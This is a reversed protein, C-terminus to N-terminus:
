TRRTPKFVPSPPNEFITNKKEKKTVQLGSTFDGVRSFAESFGGFLSRVAQTRGETAKLQGGRLIMLADEEAARSTEELIMMPSETLVFGSKILQTQQEARAQEGRKLRETSQLRAEELDLAANRKFARSEQIGQVVDGIASTGAGFAKGLTLGDFSM